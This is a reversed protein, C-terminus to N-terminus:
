TSFSTFYYFLLDINKEFFKSKVKKFFDDLGQDGVQEGLEVDGERSSQGRPLEFSGKSFWGVLCVFLCVFFTLEIEASDVVGYGIILLCIM